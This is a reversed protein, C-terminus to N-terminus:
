TTVFDVHQQRGEVQSFQVRNREPANGFRSKRAIIGVTGFNSVFHLGVFPDGLLSICPMGCAM